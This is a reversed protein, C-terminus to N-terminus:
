SILDHLCLALHGCLGSVDDIFPLLLHLTKDRGSQLKVPQALMHSIQFLGSNFVNIM